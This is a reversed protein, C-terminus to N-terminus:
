ISFRWNRTPATVLQTEKDTMQRTVKEAKTSKMRLMLNL